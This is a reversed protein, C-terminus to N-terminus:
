LQDETAVLVECIQSSHKEAPWECRADALWPRYLFSLCPVDERPYTSESKVILYASLLDSSLIALSSRIQFDLQLGGFLGSRFSHSLERVHM